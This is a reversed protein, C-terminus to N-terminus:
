RLHESTFEGGSAKAQARITSMNHDAKRQAIGDLRQAVADPAKYLTLSGVQFGPADSGENLDFAPRASEPGREERAYGYAKYRPIDDASLWKYTFGKQKNLVVDM